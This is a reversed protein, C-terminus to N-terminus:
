KQPAMWDDFIKKQAPDIWTEMTGDPHIIEVYGNVYSFTVTGDELVKREPTDEAVPGKLFPEASGKGFKQDFKEAFDPHARLYQVAAANPIAKAGPKPKAGATGKRYAEARDMVKPVVVPEGTVAKAANDSQQAKDLKQLEARPPISGIGLKRMVGVAAQSTQRSVGRVRLVQAMVEDAHEGYTKDLEAVLGKTAQSLAADDNEYLILPDAIAAAEANTLPARALEPIDLVAQADLRAQVLDAPTAQKARLAKLTEQVHASTQDVAQAPDEARQQLIADARKVAAEYVAEMNAFGPQGAHPELQAVRQEIEAAPLNELGTVADHVARARNKKELWEDAKDPGMIRAVESVDLGKGGFEVGKGTKATSALDDNLIRAFKTQALANAQSQTETEQRAQVLLGHQLARFTDPALSSLPSAPDAYAASLGEAFHQKAAPGDLADFVGQIRSTVLATTISERRSAAEAPSLAGSAVAADVSSLAQRSLNALRQDGDAATGILYAQREIGTVAAAMAAGAADKREADAKAERRSFISQNFTAVRDIVRAELSAKMEPGIKAGEAVYKQAIENRAKEWGAPDDLHNDYAATLEADLGAHFRWAASELLAKDYADGYITGDRRLALPKPEPVFVDMKIGTVPPPDAPTFSSAQQGGGAGGVPAAGKIPEIHWGEHRMRFHLGFREANAHVWAKAEPTAFKLDAAKGFNHQSKGPPAVWKRAAAVSGHKLVAARFLERQREVSRYGSYISVGPPAEALMASMRRAFDGDFNKLSAAAVGPALYRGLDGAKGGSAEKVGQAEGALAAQAYKLRRDYADGGRPNALSYGRPREYGIFAATAEDVTKAAKLRALVASESTQLEHDVFALQAEFDTAPKGMRNAFARFNAQRGERWQGIGFATGKDGSRTGAIVDEAFSSEQQLNGIIGATQEPSYGKALFFAKAQAIRAAAGGSTTAAAPQQSASGGAAAAGAQAPTESFHVQPLGVGDTGVAAGALGGERAAAQDALAGLTASLGSFLRAAAQAAAGDDMPTAAYQSAVVGQGTFEDLEGAARVM